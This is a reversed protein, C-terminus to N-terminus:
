ATMAKDIAILDDVIAHVLDEDGHESMRAKMRLGDFTRAPIRELVRTAHLLETDAKVFARDAENFGAQEKAAEVRARVAVWEPADYNESVPRPGALDHAIGELRLMEHRLRDVIKAMAVIPAELNLLEADEHEGPRLPDAFAVANGAIIAGAFPTASLALIDALLSRRTTSACDAKSM